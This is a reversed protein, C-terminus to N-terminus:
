GHRNSNSKYVSKKVIQSVNQAGKAGVSARQVILKKDGLQMGNLGACAQSFCMFLVVILIVHSPWCCKVYINEVCHDKKM